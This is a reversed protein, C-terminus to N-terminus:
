CQLIGPGRVPAGEEDMCPTAQEYALVLERARVADGDQVWISLLGIAPLEGMAGLLHEGQVHANIGESALMSVLLQAQVLDLPEHIRQM